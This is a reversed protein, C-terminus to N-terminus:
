SHEYSQANSSVQAAWRQANVGRVLLWLSLALEAFFAPLVILPFLYSAFPLALFGAFSNILYCLGGIVLLVGLVRPLFTSAIILRGVLLIHLGFFVLGLENARAGLRFSTLALAQLQEPTFVSLYATGALFVLAALNFLFYIAGICCGLLSFFAALLSIARNVPKLLEYVLVTATLYCGTAVLNSVAGVRFFTENALINRATLAADSNVIFKGGIYMAFAGTMFTILWFLGAARAKSQPSTITTIETM